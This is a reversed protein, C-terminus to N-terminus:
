RLESELPITITADEDAHYRRTLKRHEGSLDVDIRLEGDKSTTLIPFSTRGIRHDPLAFRQFHALLEGESWLEADAGKVRPEASGFDLVITAHTREQKNCTERAMLVIAVGFAVPAIRRRFLDYRTV